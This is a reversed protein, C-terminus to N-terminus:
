SLSYRKNHNTNPALTSFGEACCSDHSTYLYGQRKSLLERACLFIIGFFISPCSNMLRYDRVWMNQQRKDKKSTVVIEKLPIDEEDSSDSSYMDTQLIM